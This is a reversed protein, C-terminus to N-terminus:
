AAEGVEVREEVQVAPLSPCDQCVGLAADQVRASSNMALDRM